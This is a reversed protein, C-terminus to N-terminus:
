QANLNFNEKITGKPVYIINKVDPSIAITRFSFSNIIDDTLVFTIVELKPKDTSYKILTNDASIQKIIYGNDTNCYLTYKIKGNIYGSGLFTKGSQSYNDQLASLYYTSVIPHTKVPVLMGFVSGLIGGTGGSVIFGLVMMFAKHNDFSKYCKIAGILGAIIFFTIVTLM